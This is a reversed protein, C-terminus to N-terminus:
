SAIRRYISFCPTPSSTSRLNSLSRVPTPNGSRSEPPGGALGPRARLGGRTNYDNNIAQQLYLPCWLAVRWDTTSCNQPNPFRATSRFGFIRFVRRTALGCFAETVKDALFITLQGERADIEM